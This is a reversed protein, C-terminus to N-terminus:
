SDQVNFNYDPVGDKFSRLFKLHEEVPILLAKVAPVEQMSQVWTLLKTQKDTLVNTGAFDALIPLREFWPWMAFDVFGPNAGNYFVTNRRALEAELIDLVNTLKAFIKQTEEPTPNSYYFKHVNNPLASFQEVLVKDQAKSWPDGRRIASEPYVEDLYEMTVLSECITSGDARELAPVKGLVSRDLFWSPKRKLNINVIDFTINKHVLVLLTRQAYPCYKMNYCRLSEPVLPPCDAEGEAIHRPQKMISSLNKLPQAKLFSLTSLLQAKFFISKPLAPSEPPFPVTPSFYSILGPAPKM